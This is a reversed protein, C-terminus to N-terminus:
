AVFLPWLVFALSFLSPDIQCSRQMDIHFVQCTQEIQQDHWPINIFWALCCEQFLITSAMFVHSFRLMNRLTKSECAQLQQCCEDDSLCWQLVRTNKTLWLPDQHFHDIDPLIWYAFDFRDGINQITCVRWFTSYCFYDLFQAIPEFTLHHM